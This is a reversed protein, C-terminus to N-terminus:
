RAFPRPHAGDYPSSAATNAVILQLTSARCQRRGQQRWGQKVLGAVAAANCRGHLEHQSSSRRCFSTRSDVHRHLRKDVAYCYILVLSGERHTTSTTTLVSASTSNIGQQLCASCAVSSRINVVIRGGAM